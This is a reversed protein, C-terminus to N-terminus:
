LIIEINPENGVNKLKAPELQIALDPYPFKESKERNKFFSRFRPPSARPGYTRALFHKSGIIQRSGGGTAPHTLSFKENRM